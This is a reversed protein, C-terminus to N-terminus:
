VKSRRWIVICGGRSGRDLGRPKKAVYLRSTEV